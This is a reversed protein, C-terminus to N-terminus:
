IEGLAHIGLQKEYQPHIWTFDKVSLNLFQLVEKIIEIVEPVDPAVWIETGPSPSRKYSVFAVRQRSPLDVVSFILYDLDDYGQSFKLNKRKELEFPEQQLVAIPQTEQYLEDFRVLQDQTPIDTM